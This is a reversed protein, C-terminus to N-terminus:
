CCRTKTMEEQALEIGLAATMEATTPADFNLSTYQARALFSILLTLLFIVVIRRM